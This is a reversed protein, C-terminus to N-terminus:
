LLGFSPLIYANYFTILARKPLFWSLWRMLNINQTVKATVHDIHDDWTLHENIICGVFKFSRVQEIHTHGLAVKLPSVSRHSSHVLMCKTKFTNLNLKNRTMWTHCDNLALSLVNSIEPVSPGIVYITTDVTFLM